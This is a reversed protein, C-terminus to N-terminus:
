PTLEVEAGSQILEISAAFEACVFVVVLAVCIAVKTWKAIAKAETVQSTDVRMLLNRDHVLHM